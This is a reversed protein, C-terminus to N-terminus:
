WLASIIKTNNSRSRRTNLSLWEGSIGLIFSHTLRRTTLNNVASGCVDLRYGVRLSTSGIHLDATLRNDMRFRNGPWAFHALGDTNGLYIEYYLEGYQPSFFAGALPISTSYNLTVPLRGMEFNYTVYGSANLTLAGRASAPNNGNRTSYLCGANLAPGGGVGITVGNAPRMRYYMSWALDLEAGWITANGVGNVTRDINLGGGLSMVLREPNQKMAQYREYGLASHWGSYVVPSLYTDAVRSGGAEVYYVSTVPRVVETSDNSARLGRAVSLMTLLMLIKVPRM